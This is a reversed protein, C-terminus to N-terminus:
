LAPIESCLVSDEAVGKSIGVLFLLLRAAEDHM